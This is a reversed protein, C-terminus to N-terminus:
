LHRLLNRQPWSRHYHQCRQQQSPSPLFHLSVVDRTAVIIWYSCIITTKHVGSRTWGPVVHGPRGPLWRVQDVRVCGSRFSGSVVQGTSGSVVQGPRGPCWKIPRGPFWRVQDMWVGGSRKSGFVEQGTSGSVMQGPRGPCWSVQHAWVGDTRTWRSM